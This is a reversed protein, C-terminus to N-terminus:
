PMSPWPNSLQMKPWASPFVHMAIYLTLQSLPFSYICVSTLLLDLMETKYYSNYAIGLHNPFLFHPLWTVSSLFCMTQREKIHGM